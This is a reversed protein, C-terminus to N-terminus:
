GNLATLEWIEEILSETKIFLATPLYLTGGLHVEWGLGFEQFSSHSDWPSRYLLTAKGASCLVSALTIPAALIGQTTRVRFSTGHSIAKHFHTSIQFAVTSDGKSFLM